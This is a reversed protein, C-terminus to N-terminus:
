CEAFYYKRRGHRKRRGDVDAQPPDREGVEEGRERVRIWM